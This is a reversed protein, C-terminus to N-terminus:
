ETEGGYTEVIRRFISGAVDLGYPGALIFKTKYKIQLEVFRKLIFYPRVKVTHWKNKPINTSAPFNIIDHLTFELVAFPHKFKELRKLEEEFRPQVINAAFEEIKGKREIVVIDEYGEITYDGTKLTGIEMGTCSSSVHFEWGDQERTDKIVKFKKM